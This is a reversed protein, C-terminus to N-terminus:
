RIGLKKLLPDWADRTEVPVRLDLENRLKGLKKARDVDLTGHQAEVVCAVFMTVLSSTEHEIYGEPGLPRAGEREREIREIEEAGRQCYKCVDDM